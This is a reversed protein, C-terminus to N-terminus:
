VTTANTDVGDSSIPAALSLDLEGCTKVIRSDVFKRNKPHGIKKDHKEVLYFNDILILRALKNKIIVSFSM